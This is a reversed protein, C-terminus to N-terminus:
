EGSGVWESKRCRLIEEGGGEGGGGGGGMLEGISM